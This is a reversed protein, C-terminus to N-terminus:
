SLLKERIAKVCAQTRDACDLKALVHKVHAKVTDITIVLNDAIQKNSLGDVMLKLVEKERSSLGFDDLKSGKAASATIAANNRFSSLVKGALSPDLWQGGDVVTGIAQKLEDQSAHKDCFGDAGAAFAAFFTDQDNHGSIIIVKAHPFKGKIIKTADIGNTGPMQIDMLVVLSRPQLSEVLSMADEANDVEGLIEFGLKQVITSIGLRVVPEDDVILIGSAM